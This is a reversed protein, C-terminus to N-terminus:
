HVCGKRCARRDPCYAHIIECWKKGFADPGLLPCGQETESVQRDAEPMPGTVVIVAMQTEKTTRLQRCM